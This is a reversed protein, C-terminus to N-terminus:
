DRCINCPSISLSIYYYYSNYSTLAHRLGVNSDFTTQQKHYVLECERAIGRSYEWMVEFHSTNLPRVRVEIPPLPVVCKYYRYM